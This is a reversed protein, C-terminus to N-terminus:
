HHRMYNIRHDDNTLAEILCVLCIIYVLKVMQIVLLTLACITRKGIKITPWSISTSTYCEAALFNELHSANYEDSRRLAICDRTNNSM